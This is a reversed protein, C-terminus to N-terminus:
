NNAKSQINIIFLKPFFAYFSISNFRSIEHNRMGLEIATLIRFDDKNLYKLISLVFRMNLIEKQNYNIM